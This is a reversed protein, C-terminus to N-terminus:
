LKIGYEKMRRMITKASSGFHERATTIPTRGPKPKALVARLEEKPIDLKRAAGSRKGGKRGGTHIRLGTALSDGEDDSMIWCAQMGQLRGMLLGLNLLTLPDPKSKQAKLIRAYYWLEEAWLIVTHATSGKAYQENLAHIGRKIVETETLDWTAEFETAIRKQSENLADPESNRIRLLEIHFEIYTFEPYRVSIAYQRFVISAIRNAVGIWAKPPSERLSKPKKM